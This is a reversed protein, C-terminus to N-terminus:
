GSQIAWDYLKRNSLERYQPNKKVFDDVWDFTGQDPYAVPVIVEYKKGKAPISSRAATLDSKAASQLTRCKFPLPKLPGPGFNVMLTLNRYVVHPYLPKGHLHEPLKQPGM